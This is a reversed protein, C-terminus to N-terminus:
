GIYVTEAGLLEALDVPNQESLFVKLAPVDKQELLEHLAQMLNETM